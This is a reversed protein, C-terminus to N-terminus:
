HLLSSQCHRTGCVRRTVDVYHINVDADNAAAVAREIVCNLDTTAKNMATKAVRDPDNDAPREFLLPYGTVVIRARPVKDAIDAYLDTLLAISCVRAEVIGWCVKPTPFRPRASLLLGTGALCANFGASLGFNTTGVTLTRVLRM